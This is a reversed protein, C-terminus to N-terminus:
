TIASATSVAIPETTSNAGVLTIRTTTLSPDNAGGSSEDITVLGATATFKIHEATADATRGTASVKRLYVSLATLVTGNIGYTAWPNATSTVTIVPTFYECAAFTNYLEGDGGIERLVRNFEITINQVGPIQVSNVVVPGAVYHEAHTPTGSLAVNGAPVLPNNTGDYTTGIRCSATALSNHGASIRDLTMFAQSMRMRLHALSADATRRGFDAMAKFYLDVNGGTLDVISTLAGTSDLITKVQTTDMPVAPNTGMVATFLPFPLGASQPTILENGTIPRANEIQSIFTGSNVVGHLVYVATVAM